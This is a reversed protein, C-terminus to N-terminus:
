GAKPKNTNELRELRRRLLRGLIFSAIAAGILIKVLEADAERSLWNAVSAANGVSNLFDMMIILLATALGIRPALALMFAIFALEIFVIVGILGEPAM